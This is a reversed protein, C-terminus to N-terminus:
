LSIFYFLVFLIKGSFTPYFVSKVAWKANDITYFNGGSRFMNYGPNVDTPLHSLEQSYPDYAIKNPNFRNSEVDFKSVFGITTGAEFNENYEWNNGFVRFGYFVPHKDCNLIYNKVNTSWINNEKKEMNLVMIPDEGQPKDFICLLVRTANKSYLKFEVCKTSENYKAGLPTNDNAILNEM